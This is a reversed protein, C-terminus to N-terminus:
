FMQKKLAIRNEEKLFVVLLLRGKYECSCLGCLNLISELCKVKSRKTIDRMMTSASASTCNLSFDGGTVLQDPDLTMIKVRRLTSVLWYVSGM